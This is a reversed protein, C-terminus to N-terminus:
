PRLGLCATTASPSRNVATGAGSSAISLHRRASAAHGSSRGRPPARRQAEDYGTGPVEGRLLRADGATEPRDQAQHADAQFAAANKVTALWQSADSVTRHGNRSRTATSAQAPRTAKRAAVKALATKQPFANTGTAELDYLAIFKGLKEVIAASEVEQGRRLTPRCPSEVRVSRIGGDADAVIRASPSPSAPAFSQPAARRRLHASGPRM